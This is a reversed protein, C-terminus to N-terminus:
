YEVNDGVIELIKSMFNDQNEEISQSFDNTIIKYRIGYKDLLGFMKQKALKVENVDLGDQLHNFNDDKERVLVPQNIAEVWVPKWDTKWNSLFKVFQEIQFENARKFLISYFITSLPGRDSISPIDDAESCKVVQEYFTLMAIDKSIQMEWTPKIDFYKCVGGMPFKYWNYNFTLGEILTSKGAKQMGSIEILM